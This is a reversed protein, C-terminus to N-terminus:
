SGDRLGKRVSDVVRRVLEDPEMGLAESIEIVTGLNPIRKGRELLSIHTRHLGARSALGEQTLGAKIRDRRLESGFVGALIGDSSTQTEMCRVIYV